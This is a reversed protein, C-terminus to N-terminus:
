LHFLPQSARDKWTYVNVNDVAAKVKNLTLTLTLLAPAPVQHQIPSHVAHDQCSPWLGLSSKFSSGRHQSQYYAFRHM